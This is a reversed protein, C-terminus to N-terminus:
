KTDNFYEANEIDDKACKCKGLERNKCNVKEPKLDQLLRIWKAKLPFYENNIAAIINEVIPKNNSCSACENQDKCQELLVILQKIKDEKSQTLYIIEEINPAFSSSSVQKFVSIISPFILKREFQELSAFEKRLDKLANDELSHENENKLSSLLINIKPYIDNELLYIAENYRNVTVCM